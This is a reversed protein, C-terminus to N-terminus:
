PAETEDETEEFGPNESAPLPEGFRDMTPTKPRRGSPMGLSGAVYALFLLISLLTTVAIVGEVIQV